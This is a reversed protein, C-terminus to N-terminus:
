ATDGGAFRYGVAFVTVIYVPKRPDTEIKQRLNKVHQDITRTDGEYDFGLVKEILEDRTFTRDPHRALTLLLKYENPTLGVPSGQKDVERKPTRIVLDGARFSITEALLRDDKSRRLIAKVRAMLERPSFPKVVYDDAGFTLGRVRDDEAIKATLMLIPLPSFRRIEKCVQEGAMDPLMLDLVLLDIGGGRLLELARGGTDAEEARYGEMQLYSVVVERIKAEDDAVLITQM